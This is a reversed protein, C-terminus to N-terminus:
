GITRGDEGRESEGVIRYGSDFGDGESEGEELLQAVIPFKSCISSEVGVLCDCGGNSLICFSVREGRGDTPGIGFTESYPSAEREGEFGLWFCEVSEEEFLDFSLRFRRSSKVRGRPSLYNVGVSVNNGEDKM